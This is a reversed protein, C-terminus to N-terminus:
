REHIFIVNFRTSPPADGSLNKREISKQGVKGPITGDIEQIM